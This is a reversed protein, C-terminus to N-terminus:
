YKASNMNTEWNSYFPDFVISDSSIFLLDVLFLLLCLATLLGWFYIWPKSSVVSFFLLFLFVALFSKTKLNFYRM